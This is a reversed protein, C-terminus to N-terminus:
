RGEVNVVRGDADYDTRSQWNGAAMEGDTAYRYSCFPTAADRRYELRDVSWLRSGEQYYYVYMLLGNEYVYTWRVVGVETMFLNEGEGGPNVFSVLDDELSLFRGQGSAPARALVYRCQGDCRWVKVYAEGEDPEGAPELDRLWSEIDPVAYRLPPLEAYAYFSVEGEFDALEPFESEVTPWGGLSTVDWGEDASLRSITLLVLIALVFGRVRYNSRM